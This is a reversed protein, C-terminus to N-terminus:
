EQEYKINEKLRNESENIFSFVKDTFQTVSDPQLLGSEAEELIEKIGNVMTIMTENETEVEM